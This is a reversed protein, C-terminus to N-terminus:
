YAGVSSRAPLRIFNSFLAVIVTRYPRGKNLKSLLNALRHSLNYVVSLLKGVEILCIITSSYEYPM